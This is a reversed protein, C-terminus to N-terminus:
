RTDGGQKLAQLTQKNKEAIPYFSPHADLAEEILTEALDTEGRMMAVYAQNNLKQARRRADLHSDKSGGTAKGLAAQTMELNVAIRKSYPDIQQAMEFLVAAREAEGRALMSVGHNNLVAARRDTHLLAKAYLGDAANWDKALDRLQALGLWAKWATEDAATAESFVQFAGNTDLSAFKAYGIGILAEVRYAPSLLLKSYEIEAAENRGSYRLAQALGFRVDEDEEGNSLKTQFAVIAADYAGEELYAWGSRSAAEPLIEGANIEVDIPPHSSICGTASLSFFALALAKRFFQFRGFASFASNM